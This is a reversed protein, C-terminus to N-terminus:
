IELKRAPAFSMSKLKFMMLRGVDGTLFFVSLIEKVDLIDLFVRSCGRFSQLVRQRLPQHLHSIVLELIGSVTPQEVFGSLQQHGFALFSENLAFSAFSRL